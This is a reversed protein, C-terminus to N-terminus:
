QQSKILFIEFLGVFVHPGFHQCMNDLKLFFPSSSGTNNFIFVIEMLPPTFVSYCVVIIVVTATRKYEM